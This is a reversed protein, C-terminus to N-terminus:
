IIDWNSVRMAKLYDILHYETKLTDVLKLCVKEYQTHIHPYLCQQLILEVPQLNDMNLGDMM